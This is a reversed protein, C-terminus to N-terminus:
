HSKCCYQDFNTHYIVQLYDQWVERSVDPHPEASQGPLGPNKWPVGDLTQFVHSVKIFPVICGQNVEPTM